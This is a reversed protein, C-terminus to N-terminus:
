TMWCLHFMFSLGVNTGNELAQLKYIKDIGQVDSMVIDINWILWWEQSYHKGGHLTTSMFYFIMLSVEPGRRGRTPLSLM